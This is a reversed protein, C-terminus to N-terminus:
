YNSFVSEWGELTRLRSPNSIFARMGGLHQPKIGKQSAYQELTIGRPRVQATPAPVEVRSIVVPVAEVVEEYVEEHETNKKNAM